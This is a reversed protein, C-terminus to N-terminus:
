SRLAKGYNVRKQLQSFCSAPLGGHWVSRKLPLHESSEREGTQIQESGCIQERLSSVGHLVFAERCKFFKARAVTFSALQEYEIRADAKVEVSVYTNIDASRIQENSRGGVLRDAFAVKPIIMPSIGVGVHPEGEIVARQVVRGYSSDGHGDGVGARETCASKSHIPGIVKIM